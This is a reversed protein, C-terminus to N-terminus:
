PWQMFTFFKNLSSLKSNITESKYGETRLHNKWDAAIEATVTRGTLWIAFLRLDRLYKEITSQERDEQKLHQRFLNLQERTLIHNEM